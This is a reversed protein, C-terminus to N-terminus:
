EVTLTRRSLKSLLGLAVSNGSLVPQDSRIKAPPVPDDTKAKIYDGADRDSFLRDMEKTLQEARQLWLSRGTADFLTVYSLALIPMIPNRVM